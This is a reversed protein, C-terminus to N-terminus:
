ERSCWSSTSAFGAAPPLRRGGTLGRERRLQVLISERDPKDKMLRLRRNIRTRYSAASFFLLYVGEVFLAASGAVFIYIM